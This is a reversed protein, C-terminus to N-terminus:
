GPWGLAGPQRASLWRAWRSSSTGYRLDALKVSGILGTLHRAMIRYGPATIQAQTKLTEPWLEPLARHSEAGGM